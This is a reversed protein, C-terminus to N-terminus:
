TEVLKIFSFLLYLRNFITFHIETRFSTGAKKSVTLDALQQGLLMACHQVFMKFLNLSLDVDELMMWCSTWVLGLKFTPSNRKCSLLALGHSIVTCSIKIAHCCPPRTYFNIIKVKSSTSVIIEFAVGVLVFPAVAHPTKTYLKTKRKTFNLSKLM